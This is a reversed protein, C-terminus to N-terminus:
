LYIETQDFVRPLTFFLYKGGSLRSDGSRERECVCVFVCLIGRM